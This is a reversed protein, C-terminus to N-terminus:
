RRRNLYMKGVTAAAYVCASYVLWAGLTSVLIGGNVADLSDESLESDAVTQAASIIASAEELTMDVGYNNFVAKVEEPIHAAGLEKVFAESEALKEIMVQKNEMKYVEMTFYKKHKDVQTLLVPLTKTPRASRQVGRICRASNPATQIFVSLNGSEGTATPIKSATGGSRRFRREMHGGSLQTLDILM